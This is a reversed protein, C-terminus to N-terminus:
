RAGELGLVLRAARESAEQLSSAVHIRILRTGLPMWVPGCSPCVLWGHRRPDHDPGVTGGCLHCKGMHPLVEARPQIATRMM